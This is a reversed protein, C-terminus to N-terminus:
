AKFSKRRVSLKPRSKEQPKPPIAVDQQPQEQQQEPQMQQPQPMPYQQPQTHPIPMQVQQPSQQPPQPAMQSFKMDKQGDDKKSAMTSMDTFHPRSMPILDHKQMIDLIAEEYLNRYEWELSLSEDGIFKERTIVDPAQNAEAIVRLKEQYLVQELQEQAEILENLAKPFARFLKELSNTIEDFQEGDGFERADQMANIKEWMVEEVTAGRIRSERPKM